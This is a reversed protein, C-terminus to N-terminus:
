AKAQLAKATLVLAGQWANVATANPLSGPLVETLAQTAVRLVDGLHYDRVGLAHHLTGLRRLALSAAEWREAQEERPAIAADMAVSFAQHWSIRFTVDAATAINERVKGRDVHCAFIACVAPDRYREAMGKGVRRMWQELLVGIRAEVPEVYPPSVLQAWVERLTSAAGDSLDAPNGLVMSHYPHDRIQKRNAALHVQLRSVLHPTFEAGDWELQLLGPRARLLRLLAMGDSEVLNNNRVSLTHVYEHRFLAETLARVAVTGIGTSDLYLERLLTCRRLLQVLPVAGNEGLYNQSLDLSEVRQDGGDPLARLVGSNVKVDHAACLAIYLDRLPVTGVYPGLGPGTVVVPHAAAEVTVACGAYGRGTVPVSVVHSTTPSAMFAAVSATGSALVSGDGSVLEVAMRGGSQGPSAVVPLYFTEGVRSSSDRLPTQRSRGGYSCRVQCVTGNPVDGTIAQVCVRLVALIPAPAAAPRPM